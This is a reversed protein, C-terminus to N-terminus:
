RNREDACYEARIARFEAAMQEPIRDIKAGVSAVAADVRSFGSDVRGNLAIMQTAQWAGAAFIAAAGLGIVWRFADVAHKLGDIHGKVGDVQGELKALRSDMGSDHTGDGGGDVGGTQGELARRRARETSIDTVSTM